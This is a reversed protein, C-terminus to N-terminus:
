EAKLSVWQRGAYLKYGGGDETVKLPVPRALKDDTQSAVTFIEEAAVNM